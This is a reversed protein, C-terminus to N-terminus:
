FRVTQVCHVLTDSCLQRMADDEWAKCDNWGLDLVQLPKLHLERVFRSLKHQFHFARPLGQRWGSTTRWWGRPIKQSQLTRGATTCLCRCGSRGTPVTSPVSSAADGVVCHV